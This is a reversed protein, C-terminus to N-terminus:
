ASVDIYKYIVLTIYNAYNNNIIIIIISLDSGSRKRSYMLSRGDRGRVDFSSNYASSVFHRFRM